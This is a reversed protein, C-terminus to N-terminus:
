HLVIALLSAGGMIVALVVVALGFGMFAIKLDARAQEREQETVM